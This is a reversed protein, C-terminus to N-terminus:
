RSLGLWLCTGALILMPIFTLLMGGVRFPM